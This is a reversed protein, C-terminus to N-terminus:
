PMLLVKSVYKRSILVYYRISYICSQILEYSPFLLDHCSHSASCNKQYNSHFTINKKSFHPIFELSQVKLNSSPGLNFIPSIVELM